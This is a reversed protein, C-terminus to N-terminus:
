DFFILTVTVTAAATGDNKVQPCAYALGAVPFVHYAGGSGTTLENGPTTSGRVVRANAIASFDAQAGVARVTYAKDSIVSVGMWRKGLTAQGDLVSWAAAAVEAANVVVVETGTSAQFSMEVDFGLLKATM